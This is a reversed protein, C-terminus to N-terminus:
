KSTAPKIAFKLDCKTGGTITCILNDVEISTEPVIGYAAESIKKEMGALDISPCIGIIASIVIQIFNAVARPTKDEELEYHVYDGIPTDITKGGFNASVHTDEGNVQFNIRYIKSTEPNDEYSLDMEDAANKNGALASFLAMMAQAKIM